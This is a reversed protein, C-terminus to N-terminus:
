RSVDGVGERRTVTEPLLREVSLALLALAVFLAFRDVGRTQLRREIVDGQLVALTNLLNVIEVSNESAREYTGGAIATIRRLVEEDLRSLVINGARDTRYDIIRGEANYIPIIAGDPTGYGIAHITVGREAAARAAAEPNGEHNEGDTMLVIVAESVIRSDIVALAQRLADEIVTGQRSISSTSAANVFTVASAIDTTLPFQVFAQGAFLVLGFLNGEGEALLSRIALRARELRSPTIDQADMSNSVDLVVVIAIGRAEVIDADVGWSPGALAVILAAVAALWLGSKWARRRQSVHGALATLLAADGIRALAMQRARTRWAFLAVMVPLVILLLLLTPNTFMTM